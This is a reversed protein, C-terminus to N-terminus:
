TWTSTKESFLLKKSNNKEGRLIQKAILCFSSFKMLHFM